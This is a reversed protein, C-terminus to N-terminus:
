CIYFIVSPPTPIDNGPANCRDTNCCCSKLSANPAPSLPTEVTILSELAKVCALRIARLSVPM